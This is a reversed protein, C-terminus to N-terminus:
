VSNASSMPVAVTSPLKAIFALNSTFIGLFVLELCVYVSIFMAFNIENNNIGSYCHLHGNVFSYLILQPKKM